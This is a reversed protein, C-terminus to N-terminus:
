TPMQTKAGQALINQEEMMCDVDRHSDISRVHIPSDVSPRTAIAELKIEECEGGEQAATMLHYYDPVNEDPSSKAVMYWPDDRHGGRLAPLLSQRNEM